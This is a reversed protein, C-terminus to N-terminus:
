SAFLAAYLRVYVGSSRGARFFARRNASIQYRIEAARQRLKEAVLKDM